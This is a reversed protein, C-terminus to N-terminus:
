CIQAYLTFSVVQQLLKKIGDYDNHSISYAEFEVNVEQLCVFCTMM